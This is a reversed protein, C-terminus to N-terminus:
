EYFSVGMFLTKCENIIQADLNSILQGYEFLLEIYSKGGNKGKILIDQNNNSTTFEHKVHQNNNITDVLTKNVTSSNNKLTNITHEITNNLTSDNRTSNNSAQTNSTIDDTTDITNLQLTSLYKNNLFDDIDSQPYQSFKQMNQQNSVNHTNSDTKNSDVITSDVKSNFDNTTTTEGDSNSYNDSNFNNTVNNITNDNHTYQMDNTGKDIMNKVLNVDNFLDYNKSNEFLYVYHPMIVNLKSDLLLKWRAYTEAGIEYFYFYKLFKSEFQEKSNIDYYNYNFSFIQPAAVKILNDISDYGGYQTSANLSEIITQLTMTYYAM